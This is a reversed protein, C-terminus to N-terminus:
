IFYLWPPFKSALLKFAFESFQVLRRGLLVVKIQVPKSPAAVAAPPPPTPNNNDNNDNDNNNATAPSNSNNNSQSM